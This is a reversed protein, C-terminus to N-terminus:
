QLGKVNFHYAIIAVQEWNQSHSKKVCIKSSHLPTQYPVPVKKLCTKSPLFGGM